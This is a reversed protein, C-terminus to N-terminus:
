ADFIGDADDDDDEVDVLAGLKLSLRSAPTMAYDRALSLAAGSHQRLIEAAPHKRLRNRNGEDRDLLELHGGKGRLARAAAQATALHEFLLALVPLDRDAILDPTESVMLPVHARWLVKAARSLYAPPATREAAPVAREDRRREAVRRPNAIGGPSIAVVNSPAPKPGSKM